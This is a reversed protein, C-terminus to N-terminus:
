RAWRVRQVMARQPGSLSWAGAKASFTSRQACPEVTPAHRALKRQLTRRHLGLRSAAESM